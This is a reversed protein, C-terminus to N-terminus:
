QFLCAQSFIRFIWSAGTQWRWRAKEAITVKKPITFLSGKLAQQDGGGPVYLPWPKFWRAPHKKKFCNKYLLVPSRLRWQIYQFGPSLGVFIHKFFSPTKRLKASVLFSSASSKSRVTGPYEGWFSSLDWFPHNGIGWAMWPRPINIYM